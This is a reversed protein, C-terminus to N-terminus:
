NTRCINWERDYLGKLLAINVTRWLELLVPCYLRFVHWTHYVHVKNETEVKKMNSKYKEIQQENKEAEDGLRKNQFLRIFLM